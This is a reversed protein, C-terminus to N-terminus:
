ADTHVFDPKAELNLIWRYTQSLRSAVDDWSFHREVLRRGREGIASQEAESISFFSKLGEQISNVTPEIRIAADKDFGIQLNCHDTMLVALGSEWAELVAMPLGESFSPLIFGRSEKFVQKKDEGFKPGDISVSNSLGLADVLTRLYKEHGGDDWGIIRLKWDGLVEPPFLKWAQILQALGKKPHLRGLFIIEKKRNHQQRTPYIDVGNPIIVTPNKFGLRRVDNLERESQVHFCAANKFLQREFLIMALQKKWGNNALAWRDMMGHPSIVVPKQFDNQLRYAVYSPFLWLGHLHLVDLSSQESRAFRMLSPSNRYFKPFKSPFVRADIDEWDDRDKAWRADETGAAITEIGFQKGHKALSKQVEFVGGAANSLSSCLSLIKISV